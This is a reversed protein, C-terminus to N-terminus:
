REPDALSIYVRYRSTDTLYVGRFNEVKRRYFKEWFSSYKIRDSFETIRGRIGYGSIELDFYQMKQTLVGILEALTLLNNTQPCYDRCSYLEAEIRGTVGCYVTRGNLARGKACNKCCGNM